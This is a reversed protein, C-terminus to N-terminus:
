PEPSASDASFAAKVQAATSTGNPSGNSGSPLLIRRRANIFWNSVQSLTLGTMSCLTRKEDETPYPHGAHELLWSKLLDTVPKPLKGRRRPPPAIGTSPGPPVLAAPFTPGPRGGAAPRHAMHAHPDRPDPLYEPPGYHSSYGRASGRMSGHGTSAPMPLPVGNSSVMMHSSKVPPPGHAYAAHPANYADYEYDTTPRPM